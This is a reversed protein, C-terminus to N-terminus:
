PKQTAPASTIAASGPGPRSVPPRPPSPSDEATTPVTCANASAQPNRNTVSYWPNRLPRVPSSNPLMVPTDSPWTSANSTAPAPQRSASATSPRGSSNELMSASTARARPTGTRSTPVAKRTSSPRAAAPALWIVPLRSTNARSTVGAAAALWSVARGPGPRSSDTSIATATVQSPSPMANKEGYGIPNQTVM